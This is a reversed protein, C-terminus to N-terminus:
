KNLFYANKSIKQKWLYFQILMAARSQWTQEKLNPLNKIQTRLEPFEEMIYLVLYLYIQKYM